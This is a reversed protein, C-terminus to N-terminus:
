DHYKAHPGFPQCHRCVQACFNDAGARDVREWVPAAARHEAYRVDAAHESNANRQRRNQVYCGGASGILGRLSAGRLAKEHETPGISRNGNGDVFNVPYM